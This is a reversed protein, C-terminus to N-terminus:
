KGNGNSHTLLKFAQMVLDMGQAEAEHDVRSRNAKAQNPSVDEPSTADLATDPPTIKAGEYKLLVGKKKANKQEEALEDDVENIDKGDDALSQTRTDLGYEIQMVKAMTDKLPDIWMWRRGTWIPANFKDFKAMPLNIQGSLIAMELFAEHIPGLIKEIMIQQRLKWHEREDILGVRSSGYSTDGLDNTLSSYAVSLGASIMHSEANVVMEHQQSPYEPNWPAFRKNGIDEFTGPQVSMVQNENEDKEAGIVEQADGNEDYFFGLKSAAIRANLLAAKEYESLNWLRIMSQVLLTIGRTQNQYERDFLHIMDRAPVVEYDKAAMWSGYLENVPKMKRVYYNVPRRWKDVEVGMKIVHGNAPIVQNLLEDVLEPEISQLYFGYKANVDRVIRIFAEGDRAWNIAAMDQIARLSYQGDVSCNIAKSWDALREEIITNAFVDQVYRWVKKGTEQDTVQALERVNSQFTFGKPGVVNVRFLNIFRKALDNDKCLQRARERLIMNSGILDLELSSPSKPMDQTLRSIKAGAFERASAKPAPRFLSAIDDFFKM